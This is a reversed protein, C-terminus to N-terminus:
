AGSRQPTELSPRGDPTYIGSRSLVAFPTKLLIELDLRFSLHEVYYRDLEARKRWPLSNRGRVAPLNTLGPRVRLKARFLDDYYKAEELEDPRPGILSMEGTLVNWLQPLEDLSFERLFRGLRTIRPDRKGAFASGDANRISPANPRMSRFKYMVFPKGDKGLRHSCFLIPGPSDLKILIAILALLPLLCLLGAAAAVLDLVRKVAPYM